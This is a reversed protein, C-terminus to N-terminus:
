RERKGYRQDALNIVVQRQFDDYIVAPDLVAVGQETWAKRRMAEMQEDDTPTRPLHRALSNAIM